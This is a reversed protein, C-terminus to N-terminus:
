WMKGWKPFILRNYFGLERIMEEACNKRLIPRNSMFLKKIQIKKSFINKVSFHNKDKPYM